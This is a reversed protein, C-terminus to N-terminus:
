FDVETGYYTCTLLKAMIEADIQRPNSGTCADSVALAAINNLKEKFEDEKIGFDK